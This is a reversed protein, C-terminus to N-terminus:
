NKLILQNKFFFPKTFKEEMKKLNQDVQLKTDSFFSQKKM